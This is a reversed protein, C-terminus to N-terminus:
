REQKRARTASRVYNEFKGSDGFANNILSEAYKMVESKKPIYDDFNVNEQSLANRLNPDIKSLTASYFGNKIMQEKTGYVSELFDVPKIKLSASYKKVDDYPKTYNQFNEQLAQLAELQADTTQVKQTDPTDNSPM